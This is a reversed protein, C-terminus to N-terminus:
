YTDRQFGPFIFNYYIYEPDPLHGNQSYVKSYGLLVNPFNRTPIHITRGLVSAASYVPCGSSSPM